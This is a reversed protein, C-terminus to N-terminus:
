ISSLNKSAIYWGKMQYKGSVLINNNNNINNNNSFTWYNISKPYAETSCHLTISQGEYAGVLQNQSAFTTLDHVFIYPKKCLFIRNLIEAYLWIKLSLILLLDNFKGSHFDNAFSFHFNLLFNSLIIAKTDFTM